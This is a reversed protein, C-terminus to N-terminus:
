ESSDLTIYLKLEANQYVMPLGYYFDASTGNCGECLVACPLFHYSRYQESETGAVFWEFHADSRPAGLKHWILYEPHIGGLSLGISDCHEGRILATLDEYPKALYQANAFLIQERPTILISKILSRNTPIIPRSDISFLWPLASVFLLLGAWPLIKKNLLYQIAIGIIPSFLVFFPLHYRSGYVQWKFLASFAVLTCVTTVAFILISRKQTIPAFCITTFALISIVAHLTNGANEENTRITMVLFPGISTSRPDEIDIKILKHIEVISHYIILNARGWPLGTHFAMNRILNSTIGAPTVLENRHTSLRLKDSFPNGYTLWNRVWHGSNILVFFLIASIIWALRLPTKQPNKVFSVLGTFILVCGFPFLFAIATPKTWLALGSAIGATLIHLNSEPSIKYSIIEAASLLIWCSVVYDNVTSSAQIIGMPITAVVLGTFLQGSNSAGLIKGIWSAVIICSVMAWWQIFTVLRDGNGLIYVHLIAVEGGPSIVNQVEIGTAFHDVSKNQAWHAVRALHYNLSDWTQPPSLWAVVATIACVLLILSILVWEGWQFKSGTIPKPAPLKKQKPILFILIAALLIPLMWAITLVGQTLNKGLSLIETSAVLYVGWTISGRIYAQRWDKPQSQLLYLALVLVLFAILPLFALIDSM